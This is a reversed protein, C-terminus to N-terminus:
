SVLHQIICNEGGSLSCMTRLVRLPIYYVYYLVLNKSNHRDTVLILFDGLSLSTALHQALLIQGGSSARFMFLSIIFTNFYLIQEVLQYFFVIM